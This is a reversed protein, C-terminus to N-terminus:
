ESYDHVYKWNEPFDVCKRWVSIITNVNHIKFGASLLQYCQFIDSGWHKWRQDATYPYTVLTETRAAFVGGQVHQHPLHSPFGMVSPHCSPYLSGTMAINSNQVIPNVLDDIWTSDYMHGHNSCVYVLYPYITKEVAMNMAPGYMINDGPWINIYQINKEEPFDYEPKKDADSNDIFILQFKWLPHAQITPLVDRHMRTKFRDSNNHPILIITVGLENEKLPSLMFTM